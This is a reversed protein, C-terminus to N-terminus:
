APVTARWTTVEKPKAGFGASQKVVQPPDLLLVAMGEILLPRARPPVEVMEDDAPERGEADRALDLPLLTKLQRYTLPRAAEALGPLWVFEGDSGAIHLGVAALAGIQGAGTGGIAVLLSGTTGAVAEAAALDVVETQVRKGFGALASANAPDTWGSERCMAIGPNSGELAQGELFPVAFEAFDSLSLRHSAKLAIVLSANRQTATVAPPALLQHRTAALPGGMRNSDFHELLRGALKATGGADANDTDDIGILLNTAALSWDDEPM